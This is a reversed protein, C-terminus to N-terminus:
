KLPRGCRPCTVALPSVRQGCDPCPLLNPNSALQRSALLIVAVAVAGAFTALCAFSILLEWHGIGFM